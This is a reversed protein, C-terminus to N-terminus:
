PLPIETVSIEAIWKNTGSPTGVLIRMYDGSTDYGVPQSTEAGYLHYEEPHLSGNTEKAFTLTMAFTKRQAGSCYIKADVHYSYGSRTAEGPGLFALTALGASTTTTTIWKTEAKMEFSPPVVTATAQSNGVTFSKGVANIAGPKSSNGATFTIEGSVGSGGAVGSYFYLNGGNGSTTNGSSQARFTIDAGPGSALTNYGLFGGYTVDVGTSSWRMGDAVNAYNDGNRFLGLTSLSSWSALGNAASTLLYGSAAGTRIRLTTTDVNATPDTIGGFGFNGANDIFLRVNAGHWLELKGTSGTPAGAVLAWDSNTSSTNKLGFVGGTYAIQLKGDSTVTTGDDILQSNGLTRTGTVKLIRNTAGGGRLLQLTLGQPDVLNYVNATTSSPTLLYGAKDTTADAIGNVRTYHAATMTGPGSASAADISLTLNSGLSGGGNLPSTTSISPKSLVKSWSVNTIYSDSIGSWFNLIGDTLLAQGSSGLSLNMPSLVNTGVMSSSSITGWTVSTGNTSVPLRNTGSIPPLVGSHLNSATYASVDVVGGSPNSLILADNGQGGSVALRKSNPLGATQDTYTLLNAAYLSDEHLKDAASQTGAASQTAANIGLTLNGLTGGGTLPLTTSLTPLGTLKSFAMGSIAADPVLSFSLGTGTTLPVRNATTGYAPFIGNTTTTVLNLRLDDGAAFTGSTTGVPTAHVHDARAASASTGASSLGGPTLGVPSGWNFGLAVDGALTTSTGSNVTIPGASSATIARAITVGNAINHGALTTPISSPVIQTWTITGLFAASRAAIGWDIWVTGNQGTYCDPAACSSMGSPLASAAGNVFWRPGLTSVSAVQAGMAPSVGTRAQMASPTGFFFSQQTAGSWGDPGGALAIRVRVFGVVFMIAAVAMLPLLFPSRTLRKAM